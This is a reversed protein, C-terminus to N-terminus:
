GKATQRKALVAQEAKLKMLEKDLEPRWQLTTEILEALGAVAERFAAAYVLAKENAIPARAYNNIDNQASEVRYRLIAVLQKGAPHEALEEMRGVVLLDDLVDQLREDLTKGGRKRWFHERLTQALSDAM